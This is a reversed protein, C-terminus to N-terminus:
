APVVLAERLLRRALVLRDDDDELLLDGVRTPEGGLAQRLAPACYAPFRLTRGSLRLVVHDPGDEILRWRLGGRMTVSKDVTLADAFDLQALGYPTKQTFSVPM